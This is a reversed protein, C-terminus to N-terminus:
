ILEKLGYKELIPIYNKLYSLDHKVIKDRVQINSVTKIILKENFSPNLVNESWKMGLFDFLDKSSYLPNNSFNELNIVKINIDKESLVENIKNNYIDIFQIIKEFSHCWLLNPLFVKLIGLFNAIYNRKCYIFKANPFIKNLIDIYLLNELSKDTFSVKTVDIGIQKYQSFISNKLVEFDKKNFNFNTDLNKYDYNTIIQKSFFVKGLIGTEDGKFIKKDGLSILNEILTTGSRPLGMIFIPQYNCNLNVDVNKM